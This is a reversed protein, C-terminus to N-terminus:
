LGYYALMGKGSFMESIVAVYELQPTPSQRIRQKMKEIKWHWHFREIKTAIRDLFSLGGDYTDLHTHYFHDIKILLLPTINEESTSAIEQELQTICLVRLEQPVYMM